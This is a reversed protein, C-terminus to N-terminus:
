AQASQSGSVMEASTANIDLDSLLTSAVVASSTSKLFARRSVQQEISPSKSQKMEHRISSLGKSDPPLRLAVGSQIPGTLMEELNILQLPAQTTFVPWDLAGDGSREAPASWLTSEGVNEIEVCTKVRSLLAM